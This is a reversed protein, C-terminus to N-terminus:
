SYLKITQDLIGFSSMNYIVILDLEKALVACYGNFSSRKLKNRM